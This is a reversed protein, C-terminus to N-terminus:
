DSRGPGLWVEREREGVAEDSSEIAMEEVAGAVGDESARLGFSEGLELKM